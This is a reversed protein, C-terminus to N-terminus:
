GEALKTPWASAPSSRSSRSWSFGARQTPVMPQSSRMSTRSVIVPAPAAATAARSLSFTTSKMWARRAPLPSPSPFPPVGIVQASREKLASVGTSSASPVVWGIELMATPSM